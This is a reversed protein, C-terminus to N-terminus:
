TMDIALQWGRHGEKSEVVWGHVYMRLGPPSVWSKNKKVSLVVSSCCFGKVFM